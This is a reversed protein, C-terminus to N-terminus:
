KKKKNKRKNTKRQYKEEKRSKKHSEDELFSHWINIGLATAIIGIRWAMRVWPYTPIWLGMVLEGLMWLIGMFLCLGMTFIIDKKKM